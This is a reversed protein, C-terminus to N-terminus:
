RSLLQAWRPYSSRFLSPPTWPRHESSATVGIYSPRHPWVHQRLAHRCHLDVSILPPSYIFPLFFTGFFVL